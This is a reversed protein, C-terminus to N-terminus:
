LKKNNSKNVEKELTIYFSSNFTGAMCFSASIFLVKLISGEINFSIVSFVLGLIAGVIASIFIFFGDSWLRNNRQKILFLGIPISIVYSILSLIFFTIPFISILDIINELQISSEIAAYILMLITAILSGLLPSLFIM